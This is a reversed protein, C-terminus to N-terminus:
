NLEKIISMFVAFFTIIVVVEIFPKSSVISWYNLSGMIHMAGIFLYPTLFAIIAVILIRIIINM